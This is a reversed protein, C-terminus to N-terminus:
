FYEIMSPIIECYIIEECYTIMTRHFSFFILFSYSKLLIVVFLQKNILM